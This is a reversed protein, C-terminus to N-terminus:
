ELSIQLDLEEMDLDFILSLVLIIKLIIRSILMVRGCEVGGLYLYTRSCRHQRSEEFIDM